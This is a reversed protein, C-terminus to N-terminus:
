VDIIKGPNLLNHPDFCKKISRTIAMDTPSLIWPLYAKKALGIGHEATITGGLSITFRFVTETIERLKKKWENTSVHQNLINVHINGDGLHGYGIIPTNYQSKWEPLKAMITPIQRIPVSIDISDKSISVQRLADSIKSRIKWWEGEMQPTKPRHVVVPYHALRDMLQQCDAKLRDTAIGDLEILLQFSTPEMSKGLHPDSQIVAAVGTPDLFELASPRLSRIIPDVLIDMLPGIEPSIILLSTRYPPYPILKLIVETIVALSGESGVLLRKLDYGAVDKLCSGGWHFPTGDVYFGSMGLVYDTTVGYKVCRPGGSNEAINGGITSIDMSVPDPPYYLGNQIAADAISKTLVGAQAIAVQDISHIAFETLKSLDLVIGNKVPIAGGSTGTGGGRCVIPTRTETCIELVRQVDRPTTPQAVGIPVAHYQSRDTSVRQCSIPDSLFIDGIAESLISIQNSNEPM